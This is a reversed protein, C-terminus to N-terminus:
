DADKGIEEIMAFALLANEDEGFRAEASLGLKRCAAAVAEALPMRVAYAAAIGALMDGSGGKALAPTGDVAIYRKEGGAVVTVAGKAAVVANMRKALDDARQLVDGDATKFREFEGMHPTFALRCVHGEILAPDAALARLGDGDVILTGKSRGALYALIKPLDPAPGMGNGLTICDAKDAIEDLLARDFRIYGDREPMPLRMCMAADRFFPAPFSPTCLTVLGAGAALAACATMVPAGPMKESGGIVYIRGYDGKHSVKRRAPPVLREDAVFAAAEELRLGIPEVTLEGVHDPANGLLLGPKLAGFTVTADARVAERCTGTDADLGSPADLSLVYAGSANVARILEAARGTVPRNLGTGFIADVILDGARAATIEGARAGCYVAARVYPENKSAAAAAVLTVERGGAALMRALVLGDAGNNGGGYVVFARAYPKDKLLRYVAAAANHILMDETVGAAVAAQEARKVAATYAVTGAGIIRM